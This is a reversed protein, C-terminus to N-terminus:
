PPKEGIVTKLKDLRRKEVLERVDNRWAIIADRFERVLEILVFPVEKLSMTEAM